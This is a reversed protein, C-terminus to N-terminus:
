ITKQEPIAFFPPKLSDPVFIKGLIKGSFFSSFILGKGQFGALMFGKRLLTEGPLITNDLLIFLNDLV